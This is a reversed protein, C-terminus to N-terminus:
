KTNDFWASIICLGDKVVIDYIVSKEYDKWQMYDVEVYKSKYFAVNSNTESSPDIIKWMFCFETGGDLTTFYFVRTQTFSGSVKTNLTKEYTIYKTEGDDTLGTTYDNGFENIIAARTQFLQAKVSQFSLILLLTLGAIKKIKLKM